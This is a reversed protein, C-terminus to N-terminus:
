RAIEFQRQKTYLLRVLEYEFPSGTQHYRFAIRYRTDIAYLGTVAWAEHTELDVFAARIPSDALFDVAQGVGDRVSSPGLIPLVLYPGQDLGWVGLTQGFDENQQPLDFHTAVDIVGALGLTSNWAFRSATHAAKDLQLQLVANLFNRVERLNSFFNSVGTRAFEPTVARYGNVVPIFVRRDFVANFKYVQRNFGEWPDHVQIPYRADQDLLETSQIRPPPANPDLKPVTSCGTACACLLLVILLRTRPNKM